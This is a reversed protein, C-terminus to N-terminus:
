SQEGLDHYAVGRDLIHYAALSGGGRLRRACTRASGVRDADQEVRRAAASLLRDAGALEVEASLGHGTRGVARRSM